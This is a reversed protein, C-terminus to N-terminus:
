KKAPAAPAEAPAVGLAQRAVAENSTANSRLAGAQVASQMFAQGTQGAFRNQWQLAEEAARAPSPAVVNTVRGIAVGDAGNPRSFPQGRDTSFLGVMVGEGNQALAEDTQEVGARNVITAGVSAAVAAINEGRRLRAVLEDAKANLLRANERATWERALPERIDALAPMAAPIVDDVRVVFYQGDGASIVESARGETLKWMAELINAPANLQQRQQNRGERSIPTIPVIQAGVQRVAEDLSKGERRAAEYAEVRRSIAGRMEQGRLEQIVQERVDALAAERGATITSVKAVVYGVRAQVPASVENAALGFVAGAVAQDSIASRPTDNFSAPQLNNAAAVAEPTQGERLAVAIRDAAQKNPATITVFSRREPISLADKRFDFRAQIKEESIPINADAPNHFLVLTGSRFEPNMLRERNQTMFNQLQADTPAPASGAMQQNLIFWSGDRVQKTQNAVIAGYIRPLRAGAGLAAGFHVQSYQDRWDQEVMKATLNRERLKAQYADESFQGTVPDIFAPEERVRRLVLENSPRIGANWAWNFFGMENRLSELIQPLAGAKVIDDFSVPQGRQQEEQQRLQDMRSNFDQPSLSRDGAKVVMPPQLSGLIDVQSGGTVLLGLAVLALLGIAWKSKAFTRFVSIM